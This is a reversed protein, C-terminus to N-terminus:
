FTQHCSEFESVRKVLAQLHKVYSGAPRHLETKGRLRKQQQQKGHRQRCEFLPFSLVKQHVHCPQRRHQEQQLRRRPYCFSDAGASQLRRSQKRLPAPARLVDVPEKQKAEKQPSGIHFVQVSSPVAAAQCQRPQDCQREPEQFLEAARRSLEKQLDRRGQQSLKDLRVAADVSRVFLSSLCIRAAERATIEPDEPTAPLKVEKLMDDLVRRPTTVASSATTLASGHSAPSLVQLPSPPRSPRQQSQRQKRPSSSSSRAVEQVKRLLHDREELLLSVEKILSRRVGVHDKMEVQLKEQEALARRLQSTLSRTRSCLQDRQIELEKFQVDKALLKSRMQEELSARLEREEALKAKCELLDHVDGEADELSSGYEVLRECSRVGDHLVLGLIPPM